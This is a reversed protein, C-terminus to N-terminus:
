TASRAAWRAGDSRTPSPSSRPMAPGNLRACRLAEAVTPEGAELRREFLAVLEAEVGDFIRGIV